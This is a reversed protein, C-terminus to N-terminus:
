IHILSLRLDLLAPERLAIESGHALLTQRLSEIADSDGLSTIAFTKGPDAMKRDPQGSLAVLVGDASAPARHSPTAACASLLLAGLGFSLRKM